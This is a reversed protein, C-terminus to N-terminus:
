CTGLRSAPSPPRRFGAPHPDALTRLSMTAGGRTDNIFLFLAVMAVGVVIGTDSQPEVLPEGSALRMGGIVVVFSAAGSVLVGARAKLSELVTV